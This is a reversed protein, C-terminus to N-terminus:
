NISITVKCNSYDIFCVNIHYNKGTDSLFLDLLGILNSMIKKITFELLKASGITLRKTFKKFWPDQLSFLTFISNDQLLKEAIM